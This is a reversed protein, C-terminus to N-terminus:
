QTSEKLRQLARTRLKALGESGQEESWGGHQSEVAWCVRDFVEWLGLTLDMTLDRDETLNDLLTQVRKKEEAYGRVTSLSERVEESPTSARPEDGEWPLTPLGYREELMKVAPWFELGEKECVTQIADRSRGCAWCYWSASDPYVRASPKNDQGDGHLDCSFQQERDGGDGQIAYGYDELVRLIPIEERIRDARERARGM